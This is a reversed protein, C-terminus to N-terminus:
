STGLTNMSCNISTNKEIQNYHAQSTLLMLHIASTAIWQKTELQHLQASSIVCMQSARVTRAQILREVLAVAAQGYFRLIM